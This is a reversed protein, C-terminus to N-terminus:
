IGTHNRLGLVEPVLVPVDGHNKILYDLLGAPDTLDAIILVDIGDWEIDPSLGNSESDWKLTSVIGIGDAPANLAIIEALDSEGCLVAKEWGNVRCNAFLRKSSEVARRYFSLSHSLYQATLRSKEAFGTPTLYYMYRNAPAQHIKIFGKKICRKLYSNALGLAVGMRNALHRQTVEDQEDIAQLLELTM